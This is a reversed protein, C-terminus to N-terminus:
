LGVMLSFRVHIMVQVLSSGPRHSLSMFPMTIKAGHQKHSDSILVLKNGIKIISQNTTHNMRTDNEYYASSLVCYAGTPYRWFMVNVYIHNFSFSSKARFGNNPTDNIEIIVLRTKTHFVKSYWAPILHVWTLLLSVLVNGVGIFVPTLIRLDSRATSYLIAVASLCKFLRITFLCNNTTISCYLQWKSSSM